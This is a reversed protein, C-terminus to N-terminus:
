PVAVVATTVWSILADFWGGYYGALSGVVTRAVTALAACTLASITTEHIAVLLQSLFDHSIADTGLLHHATLPPQPHALYKLFEDDAAYPALRKAFFGVIFFAVVITLAAVGLPRRRFRHLAQRWPGLRATTPAALA